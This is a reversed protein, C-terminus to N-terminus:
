FIEENLFSVKINAKEWASNIHSSEFKANNYDERSDVLEHWTQPGQGGKLTVPADSDNVAFQKKLNNDVYNFHQITRVYM